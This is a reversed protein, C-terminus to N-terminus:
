FGRMRRLRLRLYADVWFVGFGRDDPGLESFTQCNRFFHKQLYVNTKAFGLAWSRGDPLEAEYFVESYNTFIFSNRNRVKNLSPTTLTEWTTASIIISRIHIAGEQHGFSAGSTIYGCNWLKDLLGWWKRM